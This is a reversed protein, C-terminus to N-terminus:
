SIGLEYNSLEYNELRGDEGQWDDAANLEYNTISFEYNELKGDEGQWDDAANLEYNTIQCNTIRWGGMRERDIMRQM